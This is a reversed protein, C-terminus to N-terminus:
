LIAESFIRTEDEDELEGIEENGCFEGFGEDDEQGEGYKSVECTSSTTDCNCSEADDEKDGSIGISVTFFVHDDESDASDEILSFTSVDVDSNMEEEYLLQRRNKYLTKLILPQLKSCAINYKQEFADGNIDNRTL